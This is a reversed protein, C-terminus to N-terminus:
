APSLSLDGSAGGSGGDIGALRTQSVTHKSFFRRRIHVTGFTLSVTHAAIPTRWDLAGVSSLKASLEFRVALPYEIGAVPVKDM